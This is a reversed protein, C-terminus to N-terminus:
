KQSKSKQQLELSSKPNKNERVCEACWSDKRVVMPSAMWYHGKSCQWKLPTHGDIYKESLLKGNNDKAIKQYKKLLNKQRGYGCERCWANRMVVSVASATFTHGEKCKWQLQGILTAYEKSLISGGYKQAKAQLQSISYKRQKEDNREKACCPCWTGKEINSPVAEWVHGKSCQWKMKSLSGVYKKTLLKGGHEAAISHYKSISPRIRDFYCEQCWSGGLVTHPTSKWIHGKNCQWKLHVGVGNYEKSLLKGGHEIAIQKFEEISHKRNEIACKNCWSNKSIIGAGGTTWTHGKDCQWKLRALGRPYEKSLLKGGRKKAYQQLEPISYRCKEAREANKCIGCWAGKRIINPVTSWIHGESCQWKLPINGGIYKKSLLRGGKDEAIKHFVDISLKSNENACTPCWRGSKILHPTTMWTHGKKCQWKMKTESHLFHKSLCAGEREKAIEQLRELKKDLVNQKKACQQCWGGQRVISYPSDWTHGKVCMWKLSAEKNVYEKSLCKGGYDSAITQM